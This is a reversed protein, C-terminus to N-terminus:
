CPSMVADGTVASVTVMGGSGLRRRGEQVGPRLLGTGAHLLGDKYFKLARDAKGPWCKWLGDACVLSQGRTEVDQSLETKVNQTPRINEEGTSPACAIQEEYISMIQRM